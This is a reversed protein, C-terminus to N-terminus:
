RELNVAQPNFDALEVVTGAMRIKMVSERGIRPEWQRMFTQVNDFTLDM